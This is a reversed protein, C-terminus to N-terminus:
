KRHVIGRVFYYIRRLQEETAQDLLAIILKKMIDGGERPSLLDFNSFYFIAGIPQRGTSAIGLFSGLIPSSQTIRQFSSDKKM